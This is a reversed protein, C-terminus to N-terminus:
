MKRLLKQIEEDIFFFVRVSIYRSSRWMKRLLKECCNKRRKLFSVFTGISLSLRQISQLLNECCNKESKLFLLQMYIRGQKQMDLRLRTLIITTTKDLKWFCYCIFNFYMFLITNYNRIQDSINIFFFNDDTYKTHTKNYM